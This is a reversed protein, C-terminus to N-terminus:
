VQPPADYYAYDVGTQKGRRQEQEEQYDYDCNDEYENVVPGPPPAVRGGRQRSARHGGQHHEHAGDREDYDLYDLQRSDRHGGRDREYDETKTVLGFDDGEGYNDYDYADKYQNTPDKYQNVVPAPPPRRQHFARHGGRDHRIAGDRKDRKHEETDTEENFFVDDRFMDGVAVPEENLQDLAADRAEIAEPTLYVAEEIFLDDSDAQRADRPHDVIALPQAQTACLLVLSLVLM